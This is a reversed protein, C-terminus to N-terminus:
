IWRCGDSKAHRLKVALSDPSLGFAFIAAFLLFRLSLRLRQPHRALLEDLPVHGPLTKQPLRLSPPLSGGDERGGVRGGSGGGGRRQWKRRGAIGRPGVVGPSVVATGPGM